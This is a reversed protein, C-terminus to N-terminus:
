ADTAASQSISRYADRFAEGGAARERAQRRGRESARHASAVFGEDEGDTVARNVEHLPVKYTALEIGAEAARIVFEHRDSGLEEALKYARMKAM